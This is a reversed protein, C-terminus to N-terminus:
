EGSDHLKKLFETFSDAIYFINKRATEEAQEEDMGENNVLVSKEPAGEHEWFVIVPNEEREKYDFCILNGAPDFAFPIM